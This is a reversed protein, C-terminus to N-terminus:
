KNHLADIVPEKARHHQYLCGDIWPIKDKRIEDGNAQCYIM